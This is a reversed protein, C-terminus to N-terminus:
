NGSKFVGPGLPIEVVLPAPGATKKDLTKARPARLAGAALQTGFLPGEAPDIVLRLKDQNGRITIPDNPIQYATNAAIPVEPDNVPFVRQWQGDAGVRYMALYGALQSVVEIRVADGSPGNRLVSYRVLPGSYLPADAAIRATLEQKRLPPVPAAAAVGNVPGGIAGNIAGNQDQGQQQGFAQQQGQGQIQEPLALGAAPPPAPRPAPAVERVADVRALRKTRPVPIAPAASPPETKPAQLKPEIPNQAIQVAPAMRAPSRQWVVIAITIAAAVAVSATGILRGRMWWARRQGAALPELAQRIQERAIPDALAERLADENQLADFLEQDELAAEFLATRERETLTNTAYGGLLKRIEDQTM